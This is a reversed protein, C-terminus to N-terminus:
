KLFGKSINTLEGGAACTSPLMRSCIPAPNKKKKKKKWPSITHMWQVPSERLSMTPGSVHNICAAYGHDSGTDCRKEKLTAAPQMPVQCSRTKKKRGKFSHFAHDDVALIFNTNPLESTLHIPHLKTTHKSFPSAPKM